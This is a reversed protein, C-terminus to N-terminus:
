LYDFLSTRRIMTYVQQSVQLANQAMILDSAAEFADKESINAKSEKKITSLSEDSALVTDINVQRAGVRGRYLDYQTMSNAVTEQYNALRNSRELPTLNADRLTDILGNLQNLINDKQPPDFTVTMDGAYQLDNLQIDIGNFSLLGDKDIEGSGLTKGNFDKVTFTNNPGDIEFTITNSAAGPTTYYEAYLADFNGYNSIMASAKNPPNTAGTLTHALPCNEFINLGSDSTQVTVNPAVQVSRTSGDAQCVYHGTSTLSMCPVSSRAGSFIYEGEANQSNMLDFLQDRQAEIAEAIADLSSQDNSGDVAQIVSTHISALTTWMSSLATEEESLADNALSASKKYQDYAGIAAEYKIKSSMGSPDEGATNFKLGTNYGQAAKDVKSNAKQIYSLNNQFQMTTSIRM